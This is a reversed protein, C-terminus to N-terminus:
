LSNLSLFNLKKPLDTMSPPRALMAIIFKGLFLVPLQM